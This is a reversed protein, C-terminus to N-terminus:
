SKIEGSPATDFPISSRISRSSIEYPSTAFRDRRDHEHAYQLTLLAARLLPSHAHDPHDDSLPHSRGGLLERLRIYLRGLRFSCVLHPFATEGFRLNDPHDFLLLSTRRVTGCTSLDFVVRSQITAWDFEDVGRTAMPGVDGVETQEHLVDADPVEDNVSWRELFILTNRRGISVAPVLGFFPRKSSKHQRAEDAEM